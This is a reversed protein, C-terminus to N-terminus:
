NQPWDNNLNSLGPGVNLGTGDWKSEQSYRVNLDTGLETVLNIITQM